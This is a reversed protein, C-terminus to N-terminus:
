AKFYWYGIKGLMRDAEGTFVLFFSHVSKADAVHTELEMWQGHEATSPIQLVGITKGEPNDLRLEITSGPVGDVVSVVFASAGKSGFDAGSVGIWDGHEVTVVRSSLSAIGQPADVLKAPSLGASWGM